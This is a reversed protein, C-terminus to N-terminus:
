TLNSAIMTLYSRGILPANFASTLQKTRHIFFVKSIIRTPSVFTYKKCVHSLTETEMLAAINSLMLVVKSLRLDKPYCEETDISDLDRLLKNLASAFLEHM